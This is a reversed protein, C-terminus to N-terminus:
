SGELVAVREWLSKVLPILAVAVREYNVSEPEGDLGIESLLDGVGPIGAVEEAILGLQLSCLTPDGEAAEWQGKDYFTVPSLALVQAPDIVASTIQEKIRRTSANRRFIGAADCNVNAALGTPQNVAGTAVFVSSTCTVRSSTVDIYATGGGGVVSATSGNASFYNNNSSGLTATGSSTGFYAAGSSTSCTIATDGSVNATGNQARLYANGVSTNCDVTNNTVVVSGGVQVQSSNVNQLYGGSPTLYLRTRYPGGGNGSNMAVGTSPGNIFAYDSSSDRFFITGGNTSDM